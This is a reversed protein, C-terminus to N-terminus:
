EISYDLKCLDHYYAKSVKWKGDEKELVFSRDVENDNFSILYEVKQKEIEKVKLTENLSMRKINCNSNNFKYGDNIKTFWCFTVGDCYVREPTIRKVFLKRFEEEFNSIICDDNKNNYSCTFSYKDLKKGNVLFENGLSNNFAGDVMWLFNLYKEEGIKLAEDDKLYQNDANVFILFMIIAFIILFIISFVKKM